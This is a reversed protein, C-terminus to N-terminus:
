NLLSVINTLNKGVNFPSEYKTENNSIILDAEKENDVIKINNAMAYMQFLEKMNQKFDIAKVYMKEFTSINSLIQYVSFNRESTGYIDMIIIENTYLDIIFPTQNQYDGRLQM